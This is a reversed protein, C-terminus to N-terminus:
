KRIERMITDTIIERFDSSSKGNITTQIDFSLNDVKQRLQEEVMQPLQEKIKTDILASVIEYLEEQHNNMFWFWCNFLIQNNNNLNNKM